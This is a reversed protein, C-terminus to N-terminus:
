LSYFIEWIVRFFSGNIFLGYGGLIVVPFGDPFYAAWLPWMSFGTALKRRGRGTGPHRPTTWDSPRTRSDAVGHVTAWWAGREEVAEPLKSLNMGMADTIGDWWGRSGAEEKARLREWCWPRKWHTPKECWTALANSSWSWHWDKWSYEPSIEKLISQNSRRATWPVRLCRKWQMVRGLHGAPWLQDRPGAWGWHPHDRVPHLYQSAHNVPIGSVATLWESNTMNISIAPSCQHKISLPAQRAATWLAVFLQIHSLM